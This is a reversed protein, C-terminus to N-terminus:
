KIEDMVEMLARNLAYAFCAERDKAIHQRGADAMANFLDDDVDVLIKVAEYDEVKIVKIGKGKRKSM